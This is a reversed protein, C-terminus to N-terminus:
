HQDFASASSSPPIYRGLAVILDSQRDTDLELGNAFEVDGERQDDVAAAKRLGMKGSLCNSSLWQSHCLNLTSRTLTDSNFM